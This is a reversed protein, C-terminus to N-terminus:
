FPDYFKFSHSEGEVAGGKGKGEKKKEGQEKM